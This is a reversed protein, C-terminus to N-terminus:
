QASRVVLVTSDDEAKGLRQLLRQAIVGPKEGAVDRFEDWQWHTRLGDSHLILLNAPTWPSEGLVPNPANLGIIGRRVVLNFKGEGGLLRVEINGVSAVTLKRQALDFRALAMVVGRTARCARGVGRFLSELPQDFHTDIYQRATHSAKQAFQGHGLGDIVGALAHSEWQRIVFADGNESFGRYPRTAAGFVLGTSFPLAQKPRMWRQCVIRSGEEARAYFEVDDMLRNITGLGTGLGGATSYGDTMAKEVDAIGPGSDESEIEIGARGGSEIPRIRITGGSAHRILNTSLEATVLAIEECEASAFGASAALEKALDAARKADGPWTVGAIVPELAGRTLEQAM